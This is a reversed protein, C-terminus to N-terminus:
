WDHLLKDGPLPRGALTTHFAYVALALLSSIAFLATHAYWASRNITLPFALIINHVYILAAATLVGFTRLAYWVIVLLFVPRAAIIPTGALYAPALVLALAFVFISLALWQRWVLLLVLNLVFMYSLGAGVATITQLCWLSLFAGANPMLQPALAADFPANPIAQLVCM